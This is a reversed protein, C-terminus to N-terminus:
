WTPTKANNQDESPGNDFYPFEVQLTIGLFRIQLLYEAASYFLVM